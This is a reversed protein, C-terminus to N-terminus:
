SAPWTRQAKFLSIGFLVFGLPTTILYLIWNTNRAPEHDACPCLRCNRDAAPRRLIVDASSSGTLRQHRTHGNFAGSVIKNNHDGYVTANLGNCQVILDWLALFSEPQRVRLASADTLDV